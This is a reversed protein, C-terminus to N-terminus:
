SALNEKAGTWSIGVIQNTFGYETQSMGVAVSAAGVPFEVRLAHKGTLNSGRKNECAKSVKYM